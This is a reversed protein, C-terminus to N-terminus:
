PSLISRIRPAHPSNPHSELYKGALAQAESVRGAGHLALILLVGAEGAFAGGPATALYASLEPIAQDHQGRDFLLKGALFRATKAQISEPFRTKLAGLAQAALAHDGALRSAQALLLLGAPSESGLLTGVNMERVLALAEAHQGKEVLTMWRPISPAGSASTEPDSVADEAETPATAEAPAEAPTPVSPAPESEPPRASTTPADAGVLSLRKPGVEILLHEPARVERQGGVVPGSLVVSGEHMSLEFREHVPDWSTTFRTGTVRITFPGADIRWQSGDRSRVDADIAGRELQLTAGAPTTESVRWRSGSFAAVRTGDSFRVAARERADFWQEVALPAGQEVSFTLSRAPWALVLFLAAAAVLPALLWGRALRQRLSRRGPGAESGRRASAPRKGVLRESVLRSDVERRFRALGEAEDFALAERDQHRATRQGLRELARELKM